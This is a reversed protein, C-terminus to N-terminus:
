RLAPPYSLWWHGPPPALRPHHHSSQTLALRAPCAFAKSMDPHASLQPETLPRRPHGRRLGGCEESSLTPFCWFALTVNTGEGGPGSLCRTAAPRPVDAARSPMPAQSLLTRALSAGGRLQRGPALGAQWLDSGPAAGDGRWGWPQKCRLSIPPWELTTCPKPPLSGNRNRYRECLALVQLSWFVRCTRRRLPFPATKRKPNQYGPNGFRLSPTDTLFLPLFRKYIGSQLCVWPQDLGSGQIRRGTICSTLM